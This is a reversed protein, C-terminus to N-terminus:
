GSIAITDRQMRSVDRQTKVLDYYVGKTAMLEEHTGTEVARGEKLVVLRDANRLTSLRHAIAITTRNKVLRSIAEQIKQETHVDVSSTAEDLILIRPNHLIARAISIRQREGGSLRSGREGVETDYGDPMKMIFEHANAARSATVVESIAADPKAFAVNEAITGAFLFPEQLVVGIQQRLDSLRIDRIDHGDIAIGGSDCTYFRCVLNIMTSKGAGSQGVLGIMEGPQVHLNINRLVPKQPEYGFTMDRFQIAGRLDPLDVLTGDDRQEPEADLVEFIREAATLCRTAWNLTPGIDMVPRYFMWIYANFAVLEGLTMGSDPQAYSALVMGGGILWLIIRGFEVTMGLLPFFTYWMREGRTSYDRYEENAKDFQDVATREQAFARVVRVGSVADNVVDHLKSHRSWARHFISRVRRFFWTAGIVALPVPLIVLLTLKWDMWLLCALVAVITLADRVIYQVGDCLFFYIRDTDHTVHSIVTGTQRKDFFRLSLGHLGAYLKQRIDTALRPGLWAHLRGQYIALGTALVAAIAMMGVLIGLGTYPSDLGRFFASIPGSADTAAEQKPPVLVDDVMYKMFLPPVVQFVTAMLGLLLLLASQRLYPRLYGLIRLLARSKRSCAPCPSYEDPLPLGCRSCFKQEEKYEWNPPDDRKGARHDVLEGLWRAIYGFKANLSNSYHALEIVDDDLEVVLAGGSVWSESRAARVDAIALRRTLVADADFSLLEDDTVILWGSDFRGAPTVDSEAAFRVHETSIGFAALAAEISAPVSDLAYM